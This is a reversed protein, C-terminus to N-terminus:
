KGDLQRELEKRLVRLDTRAKVFRDRDGAEVTDGDAVLRCAELGTALAALTDPYITARAEQGDRGREPEDDEHDLTRM